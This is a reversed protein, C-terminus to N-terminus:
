PLQAELPWPPQALQRRHQTKGKPKNKITRITDKITKSSDTKKTQHHDNPTSNRKQTPHQLPEAHENTTITNDRLQGSQTIGANVTMTDELASDLDELTTPISTPTPPQDHQHSSRPRIPLARAHTRELPNRQRRNRMHKKTKRGATREIQQTEHDTPPDIRVIVPKRASNMDTEADKCHKQTQSMKRRTARSPCARVRM